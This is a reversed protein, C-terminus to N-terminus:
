AAYEWDLTQKITLQSARTAPYCSAVLAAVVIFGLWMAAGSGSLTLSLAQSSMSALLNGVVASPLMAIVAGVAASAVGTMVGELMVSAVVTRSPAGIARMIGFERTREIVSSGLSSALGLLGVVAMMAAIFGLAWVLIYIHGGQAAGFSSEKLVARLAIQERELMAAIARTAAASDAGERLTVRVAASGGAPGTAQAFAYPPVYVAGGALLERMIGVVLLRVPRGGVKLTITHGPRVEPFITAAAQSNLVAVMGDDARLWRGDDITHAIMATGPPAERLAFSGHGGDPYRPVVELADKGQRSTPATSWAEARAVEPMAALLSVVKRASAGQGIRLELDFKRDARAQTVTNEWAARLNMSTMFMASAGALLLMTLLFRTRRRFMNRLALTLATSGSPLRLLARAMWSPANRSVDNDQLAAQVTARAATSIPALAAAIPIALGLAVVAAYLSWPLAVSDIRLNLLNALVSILGHGGAVGAPIGIALALLGLCAVLALYMGAVQLGQAGVAKMIAIQRVQQTLLGGIVTATLIAGLVLVLVSFILLMLLVANMQSQHPHTLPPPIRVEEVRLGRAELWAALARATVEIAAADGPNDAVVIKLLDLPAQEGLAALTAPTAYGYIVQEQWAPALGPDHVAAGIRVAHRGSRPLQITLPKGVASGSLAMASREILLTNPAPPWVGSEHHLRNIDLAAFDPVVFLRMPLWKGPAVEARASLAAGLDAGAIGPRARIDKLTQADLQEAMEFQASAPNTGIYNRPVERRMVTYTGAMTVLAAISVALAMVIMALRGRALRADRLMKMWRPSM